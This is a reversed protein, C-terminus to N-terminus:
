IQFRECCDNFSPHFYYVLKLYKVWIVKKGMKQAAIIPGVVLIINTATKMISALPNVTENQFVAAIFIYCAVITHVSIKAFTIILIPGYFRDIEKVYEQVAFYNKKWQRIWYLSVNWRQFSRTSVDKTIAEINIVALYTLCVFLVVLFDQFTEDYITSILFSTLQSLTFIQVMKPNVSTISILIAM